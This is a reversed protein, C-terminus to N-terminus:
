HMTGAQARLTDIQNQIAPADPATPAHMLYTELDDLALQENGLHAHLRGRDRHEGFQDPAALLIRDMCALAKDLEHSSLYILKLNSLLRAVIQRNSVTELFADDFSIRGGSTRALLDICQQRSLPTEPTFPDLFIEPEGSHKMLFHQPFGVGALPVGVRRAVELYVISLSIPIGLGRALVENLFSNRPDYYADNNGRLGVEGRLFSILTRMREFGTASHELRPALVDALRDLEGVCVDPDLGVYEEAAILASAVGLDLDGTLRALETFRERANV